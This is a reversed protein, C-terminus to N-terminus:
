IVMEYIDYIKKAAEDWSFHGCKDIGKKIIQQTSDNDMSLVHTLSYVIEEVSYPDVLYAADGAIEELATGKSTIVPVKSAFAELVPLGFGESLSPFLFVRAGQYLCRLDEDTANRVWVCDGNDEIVNIAQILEESKWGKGGVLVLQFEEKIDIPLAHYAEIIRNINKRPQFTGVFLIYPKHINYKRKVANVNDPSQEESWYKSVGCYVVSVKEHPVGWYNVIDDIMYNSITIVHDAWKASNVLVRNKLWRMRVSVWEPNKLPIADYLTAVVPTNNLKPIKYDTAHYVDVRSEIMRQNVDHTGTINSLFGSYFYPLWFQNAQSDQPYSFVDFVSSPYYFRELKVSDIESISSILNETYVGIGDRKGGTLHQETSTTSIGIKM